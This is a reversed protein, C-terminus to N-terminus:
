VYTTTQLTLHTYSVAYRGNATDRFLNNQQITQPGDGTIKDSSTLIGHWFLTMKEQLPRSSYAMNMLWWRQKHSLSDNLNFTQKSLREELAGNDRNEYNLFHDITGQLGLKNYKKLEARTAGFGARWALHRIKKEETDLKPTPRFVNQPPPVPTPTATPVPTPTPTATPVPTPSPSATPRDRLCM